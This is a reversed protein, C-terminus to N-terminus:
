MQGRARIIKSSKSLTKRAIHKNHLRIIKPNRLNIIILEKLSKLNIEKILKQILNNREKIVTIQIKSWLRSIWIRCKRRAGIM